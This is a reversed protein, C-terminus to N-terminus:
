NKGCRSFMIYCQHLTWPFAFWSLNMVIMALIKKLLLLQSSMGNRPSTLARFGQTPKKVLTNVDEGGSPLGRMWFVYQDYCTSLSSPSSHHFSFAAQALVARLNNQFYTFNLKVNFEMECFLHWEPMKIWKFIDSCIINM